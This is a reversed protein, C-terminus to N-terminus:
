NDQEELKENAKEMAKLLEIEEQLKYNKGFEFQYIEGKNVTRYQFKKNRNDAWRFDAKSFRHLEDANFNGGVIVENTRNQAKLYEIM